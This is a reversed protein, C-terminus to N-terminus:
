CFQGGLSINKIILSVLRNTTTDTAKYLMWSM